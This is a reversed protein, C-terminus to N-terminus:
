LPNGIKMHSLNKIFAFDNLLALLVHHLLMLEKRVKVCAAAEASAESSADPFAQLEHELDSDDDQLLSFPNILFFSILMVQVSNSVLIWTRFM